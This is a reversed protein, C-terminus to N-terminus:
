KKHIATIHTTCYHPHLAPLSSLLSLAPELHLECLLSCVSASCHPSIGMIHVLGLYVTIQGLEAWIRLSNITKLVRCCRVNLM